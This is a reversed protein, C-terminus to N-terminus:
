GWLSNSGYRANQIREPRYDDAHKQSSFRTWLEESRALLATADAGNKRKFDAACRYAMIEYTINQPFVLDVPPYTSLAQITGDTMFLPLRNDGYIGMYAVGTALRITTYVGAVLTPLMRFVEGATTRYYIAVTDGAIQTAPIGTALGTDIELLGAGTIHAYLPMVLGWPAVYNAPTAIQLVPAAGDLNARWCQAATSWYIFGWMLTHNVVAGMTATIAAPVMLTTLNTAGRWVEGSMKFYVFGALYGVDSPAAAGTYLLTDVGTDLSYARITLGITYVIARGTATYAMSTPVVSLGTYALPADPVTLEAPAPYYDIRITPTLVGSTALGTVWLKGERLRYAPVGTHAERLNMPFRTMERYLGNDLWSVSRMRLFDAPLDITFQNPDLVVISAVSLTASKIFWDDDGKTIAEYVDRYAENLSFTKDEFTIYGSNQLDALLVARDIVDKTTM